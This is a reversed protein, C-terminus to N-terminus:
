LNMVYCCCQLLAYLMRDWLCQLIQMKFQIIIITLTISSLRDVDERNRKESDKQVGVM